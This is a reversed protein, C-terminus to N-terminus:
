LNPKPASHRFSSSGSVNQCYAEMYSGDNWIASSILAITARIARLRMEDGDLKRGLNCYLLQRYKEAEREVVRVRRRGHTDPSSSARGVQLVDSDHCEFLRIAPDGKIDRRLSAIVPFSQSHHGCELVNNLEFRSARAFSDMGVNKLDDDECVM